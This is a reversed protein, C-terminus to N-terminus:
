STRLARSPDIRSARLAPIVAGILAVTLMLMAAAAWVRPDGGEIHFLYSKVFKVAWASVLGGAILGAAVAALQERVLLRVVRQPTSGLAVRVGIERTRRVSAMAMLGLIGVGVVTLAAVAFAGFLWSNLRRPRVTDNLLDAALAATTVRVDAAADKDRIVGLLAQMVASPDSARVVISVLPQETGVLTHAAYIQGASEDDWRTFRANRVIGVVQFPRPQQKVYGTLEQGVASRGPFKRAAARESMLAVPEGNKLEEDTPWRGAVLSLGTARFFGPTVAVTSGDMFANMMSSGRVLTTATAGADAVGPVRRVRDVFREIAPSWDASTAGMAAGQMVIVRDASFGPDIRWVQVLSGVLLTGGLTLTLGIAVQATTIVFRGMSRTRVTPASGDNMAPAAPMRMARWVPWISVVLAAIIAGLVAFAIVRADISPTKLINMSSPMLGLTLTKLPAAVAVGLLAGAAVLVANETVLVKAVAAASSGLARRIAVERWRDQARSAMLGSINLCGLLMLAGAAGFAMLFTPRQNRTLQTDLPEISARDFVPSGERPRPVWDVREAAAAADMRSQHDSLPRDPPLRVIAGFSRYRLDDRRAQDIVLPLLIDVTVSGSSPHMFNRPLVGAVRFSGTPLSAPQPLSQGLIDARGEFKSQWLRYSILVASSAPRAEAYDQAVFGGILPRIGLVDFFAEDIATVSPAWERVDGLQSPSSVGRIITSRAGDVAATWDRVNRPAISIGGKQGKLYGGSMVFLEEPREYPLAKFLVGDVVAFVTTSLALCLAMVGIVTGSYWPSRALTRVAHRVETM